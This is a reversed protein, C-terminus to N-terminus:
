NGNVEEGTVHKIANIINRIDEDELLIDKITTKNELLYKAFNQAVISKSVKKELLFNYVATARISKDSIEEFLKKQQTKYSDLSYHSDLLVNEFEDGLKSKAFTHELTWPKTIYVKTKEINDFFSTKIKTEIKQKYDNFNPQLTSLLEIIQTEIEAIRKKFSDPDLKDSIHKSYLSKSKTIIENSTIYIDELEEQADCEFYNAISTNIDSTIELYCPETYFEVPKLDLDTIISVPFNM